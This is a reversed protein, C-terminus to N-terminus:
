RSTRNTEQPANFTGRAPLRTTQELLADSLGGVRGLERKISRLRVAIRTRRARVEELSSQLLDLRRRWKDREQLSLLVADVDM